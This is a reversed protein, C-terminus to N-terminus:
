NPSAILFITVQTSNNTEIATQLTYPCAVAFGLALLHITQVPRANTSESFHCVFSQKLGLRDVTDRGHQIQHHPLRM